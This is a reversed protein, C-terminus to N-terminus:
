INLIFTKIMKATFYRSIKTFHFIELNSFILLRDTVALLLTSIKCIHVWIFCRYGPLRKELNLALLIVTFLEWFLWLIAFFYTFCKQHCLIDFNKQYQGLFENPKSNKKCLKLLALRFLSFYKLIETLYLKYNKGELNKPRVKM